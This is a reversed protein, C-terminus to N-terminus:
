KDPLCSTISFLSDALADIDESDLLESSALPDIMRALYELESVFVDAKDGSEGCADSGAVETAYHRIKEALIYRRLTRIINLLRGLEDEKRKKLEQAQLLEQRKLEEQRKLDKARQDCEAQWDKIEQMADFIKLVVKDMKEELRSFETDEVIFTRFSFNRTVTIKLMGTFSYEYVSYPSDSPKVRKRKESIAIPVKVGNISIVTEKSSADVKCGFAEFISIISDFICLARSFTDKSVDIDLHEKPMMRGPMKLRENYPLESIRHFERTDRIIERKSRLTQAVPFIRVVEDINRRWTGNASDFDIKFAGANAKKLTGRGPHIDQNGSVVQEKPPKDACTVTIVPNKHPHPLPKKEVPKGFKLKSWYASDPTPINHRVCAEKLFRSPIDYEQAVASLAKEWIRSYLEVRKIEIHRM